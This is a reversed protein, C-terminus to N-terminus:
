KCCNARHFSFYSAINLLYAIIGRCLVKPLFKGVQAPELLQVVETLARISQLQQCQSKEHWMRHFLNFMIGLFHKSLTDSVVALSCSDIAAPSVDNIQDAIQSAKRKSGQCSIYSLTLPNINLVGFDNEDEVFWHM